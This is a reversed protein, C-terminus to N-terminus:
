ATAFQEEVWKAHGLLAQDEGFAGILQVGVPMGQPGIFHPLTICPVHLLTWARSMVPDGMDFGEGAVRRSPPPEGPASPALLADYDRMLFAFTARVTQAQRILELYRAFPMARGTEILNLVSTDLLDRHNAYEWAYSHAAEFAQMAKHAEHLEAFESPLEVESVQAGGQSLRVAAKELAERTAPEARTWWPTRCLGIRPNRSPTIRELPVSVEVQWLLAVDDVSRGILGLTDFSANFYKFGALSMIGFSPRMGVVGNYSCPRILSSASQSGLALPVMCAAVAAASGSSSGGATFDPNRGNNVELPVGCGFAQTATKGLIVAGAERLMTIAAADSRPLWGDYIPSGYGTPM